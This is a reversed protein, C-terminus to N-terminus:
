KKRAVILMNSRLNPYMNTIQLLISKIVKGFFSDKKKIDWNRDQTKFDKKSSLKETRLNEEFLIFEVLEFGTLEFVKKFEDITYEHHHGQHFDKDFYEFINAWNSYGLLMKLRVTLRCANPTTAIVVGGSHLIRNFENLVPKPSHILHEIVDGFFVVNTSNDEIPIKDSGVDCFDAFVGALKINDVANSGSASKSDFSFVKDTIKKAFRPAIGKGTGIDVLTSNESLFESIKILEILGFESKNYRWGENVSLPSLNYENIVDSYINEVQVPTLKM